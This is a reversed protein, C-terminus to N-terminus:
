PASERASSSSRLEGHRACVWSRRRSDRARAGVVVVVAARDISSRDLSRPDLSLSLSLLLSWQGEHLAAEAVRRVVRPLLHGFPDAGPRPVPDGGVRWRGAASRDRPQPTRTRTLACVCVCVGAGLAFWAGRGGTDDDPRVGASRRPVRAVGIAPCAPRPFPSCPSGVGLPFGGVRALRSSARSSALGRSPARAVSACSAGQARLLLRRGPLARRQRVLARGAAHVRGVLAHGAAHLIAAPDDNTSRRRQRRAGRPPTAARSFARSPPSSSSLRVTGCLDAVTPPIRSPLRAARPRAM